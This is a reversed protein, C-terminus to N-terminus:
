YFYDFQFAEVQEPQQIPPFSAFMADTQEFPQIEAMLAEIEEPALIPETM